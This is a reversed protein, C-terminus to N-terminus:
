REPTRSSTLGRVSRSRAAWLGSNTLTDAGTGGSVTGGISGANTLLNTGNGLTVTGTITKSNTLTDANSGGSYNGQITGSNALKNTGTSLHIDGILTGSNTVTDNSMGNDFISNDIGEIIGKNSITTKSDGTILVGYGSAGLGRISGANSLTAASGLAVGHYGGASGETGITIKSTTLIGGELVIAASQQSTVAGNVTVTWTGTGALFAGEGSAGTAILYAGADVTLSDAGLNDSSFADGAPEYVSTTRTIKFIGM